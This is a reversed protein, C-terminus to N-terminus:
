EASIRLEYIFTVNRFKNCSQHNCLFFSVFVHDFLRRIKSVNVMIFRTFRQEIECPALYVTPLYQILLASTSFQMPAYQMAIPINTPLYKKVTIRKSDSERYAKETYRVFTAIGNCLKVVTHFNM